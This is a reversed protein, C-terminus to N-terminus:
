TWTGDTWERIFAERDRIERARRNIPRNAEWRDIAQGAMDVAFFVLHWAIKFM